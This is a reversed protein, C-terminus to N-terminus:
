TGRSRHILAVVEDTSYRKSERIAKGMEVVQEMSPIAEHSLMRQLVANYSERAHKKRLELGKRTEEHIQITTTKM